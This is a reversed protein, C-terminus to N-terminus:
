KQTRVLYRGKKDISIIIDGDKDTRYIKVKREKLLELVQPSPAGAMNDSEVSIIALAPSVADLFERSTTDLYGHHGVKLANAKLNVNEKLLKKEGIKNLDGVFLCSFNHYTLKIVLSNSNASVADPKIPWLIELDAGGLRLRDGKKLQSYNRKTRVLVGYWRQMDDSDNLPQGNDCIKDIRIKPIIFFAGSIHDPHCHSFILYKIRGVGNRYLYDLLKYGSLLNGTDILANENEAQILIADGSGIDIFHLKLSDEAFAANVFLIFLFIILISKLIKM